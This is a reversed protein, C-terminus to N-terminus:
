RIVGTQYAFWIPNLPALTAKLKELEVAPGHIELRTLDALKLLEQLLPGVNTLHTLAAAADVYAERCFLIDGNLTFGYYLNHPEPATKAIFDPMLAKIAALQGPHVKFYPHISVSNSPQSM